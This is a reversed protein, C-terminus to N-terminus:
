VARGIRDQRNILAAAGDDRAELRAAVVDRETFERAAM